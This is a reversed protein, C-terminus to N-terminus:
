GGAAASFELLAVSPLAAELVEGVGDALVFRM